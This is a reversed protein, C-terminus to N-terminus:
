LYNLSITEIFLPVKVAPQLGMEARLNRVIGTLQKLQTIQTLVQESDAIIYDAPNPYSALMISPQENKAALPAVVQWLEETIFPMFPHAIRLVAELVTLLTDITGARVSEDPFQLNVKALELYWDCLENWIFEYFGNLQWILVIPLSVMKWM